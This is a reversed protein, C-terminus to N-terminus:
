KEPTRGEPPGQGAMAALDSSLDELRLSKAFRAGKQQMVVAIVRRCEELTLPDYYRKYARKRKGGKPKYRRLRVNALHLFWHM